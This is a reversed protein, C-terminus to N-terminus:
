FPVLIYFMFAELINYPTLQAHDCANIEILEQIIILQHMCRNEDPHPAARVPMWMPLPRVHRRGIALNPGSSM